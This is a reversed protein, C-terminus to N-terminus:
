FGRDFSLMSFTIFSLFQFGSNKNNQVVLLLYFLTLNFSQLTKVIAEKCREVCGNM